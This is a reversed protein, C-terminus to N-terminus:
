KNVEVKLYLVYEQDYPAIEDFSDEEVSYVEKFGHTELNGTYIGNRPLVLYHCGNEECWYAIEDLNVTEEALAGEAGIPLMADYLERCATGKEEWTGSIRAFPMEIDARYQHVWINLPLPFVATKDPCTTDAVIYDCLDIVVPPIKYANQAWGNWRIQLARFGGSFLLIVPIVALAVIQRTRPSNFLDVLLVTGAALIVPVPVVWLFRSLRTEEANNVLFHASVPNIISAILFLAPLILKKALSDATLSLKRWALFLVVICCFFFFYVRYSDRLFIAMLSRMSVM